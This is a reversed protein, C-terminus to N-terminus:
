SHFMSKIIAMRMYISNNVQEYGFYHPSKLAEMSIEVGINAPGPHYLPIFKSYKKLKESNIGYKQHYEEDTRISKNLHREKQIRLLYLIDCKAMAEDLSSTMEYDLTANQPLFEEPGCLIVKMGFQPLLSCLSHGVRSHICDGIIGITKNKPGHKCEIITLLDLLAQTPHENIGDGGNIIKLPPTKKFQSLQHSVNTRIICMGVGQHALTTITEELSEGKKLSSAEANFDLYTAGLNKIAIVFSNKTRTSNELFSTAIIPSEGTSMQIHGVPIDRNKFKKALSILSKLQDYNLDSINELVTPFNQM